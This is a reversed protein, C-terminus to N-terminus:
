TKLEARRMVMSRDRAVPILPIWPIWQASQAHLGGEVRLPLIATTLCAFERLSNSVQLVVVFKFSMTGCTSLMAFHNCIEVYPM